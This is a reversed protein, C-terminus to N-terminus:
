SAEQGQTFNQLNMMFSLVQGRVWPRGVYLKEAVERSFEEEGEWALNEWGTTCAAMLESDDQAIEERTSKRGELEERRERRRRLEAQKTKCADSEMGLLHLRVPQRKKGESKAYLPDGSRPDRLHLWAGQEAEAELDIQSIDFSTM